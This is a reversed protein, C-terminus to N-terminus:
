QHSFSTDNHSTTFGECPVFTKDLYSDRGRAKDRARLLNVLFRPREVFKTICWGTRSLLRSPFPACRGRSLNTDGYKSALTHSAIPPRSPNFLGGEWGSRWIRRSMNQRSSDECASTHLFEPVEGPCAVHCALALPMRPLLCPTWSPPRGSTQAFGEWRSYPAHSLRHRTDTSCTPARQPVNPCTAQFAEMCILISGNGVAPGSPM